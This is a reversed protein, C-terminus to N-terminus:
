KSSPPLVFRRGKSKLAGEKNLLSISRSLASRELCLYDSLEERTKDIEFSDSENIIKEHELFSLIKKKSTKEKLISLHLTKGSMREASMKFLNALVATHYYCSKECPHLLRAFDFFLVSSDTESFFDIRHGKPPLFFLEGFADGKKLIETKYLKEGSYYEARVLGDEPVLVKLIRESDSSFIKEGQMYYNIEGSMCDSFKKIDSRPIGSFVTTKLM